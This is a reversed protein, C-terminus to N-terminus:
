FSIVTFAEQTEYTIEGTDFWYIAADHQALRRFQEDHIKPNSSVGQRAVVIGYAPDDEDNHLVLSGIRFKKKMILDKRVRSTRLSPYLLMLKFQQLQLFDM